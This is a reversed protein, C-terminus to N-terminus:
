DRIGLYMEVIQHPLEHPISILDYNYLAIVTIKEKIFHTFSSCFGVMNGNHGAFLRGNETTVLFWGYGLVYNFQAENNAQSPRPTWMLRRSDESLLKDTYLSSNFKILYTISSVMMGASYTGTPSYYEANQIVRNKHTYGNARGPIIKYPDNVETQAMGLPAFIAQKLYDGYSKESLKEILYGLLYYGTNDYAQRAGPEFQIPLDAVLELIHDKPLDLRTSKWYAEVETYSKIGSQHCLIHHIQVPHWAKPLHPLHQGLTDTLKLKGQEILQFVATATFVKTISAISFVSDPTVPIQHEVNELGFGDVLIPNNNDILGFALGPVQKEQIFDNIKQVIKTKLKASQKSM